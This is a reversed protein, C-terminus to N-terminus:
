DEIDANSLWTVGPIIEGNENWKTWLGVKRGGSYNGESCKTGSMYWSTQLNIKVGNLYNQEVCKKGNVYWDTWLGTKKGGSYM